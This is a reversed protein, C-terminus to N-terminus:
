KTTFRKMKRVSIDLDSPAYVYDTLEEIKIRVYLDNDMKTVTVDLDKLALLLDPLAYSAVRINIYDTKNSMSNMNIM